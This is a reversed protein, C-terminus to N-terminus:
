IVARSRLPIRAPQGIENSPTAESGAIAGSPRITTVTPEISRLVLPTSTKSGAPFPADAM